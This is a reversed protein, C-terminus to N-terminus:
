SRDGVLRMAMVEGNLYLRAGRLEGASASQAGRLEQGAAKVTSTAARELRIAGVAMGVLLTGLVCRLVQELGKM